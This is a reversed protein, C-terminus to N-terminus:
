GMTVSITSFFFMLDKAFFFHYLVMISDRYFGSLVLFRDLVM